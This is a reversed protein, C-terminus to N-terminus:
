LVLEGLVDVLYEPQRVDDVERHDVDARRVLRDPAPLHIVQVAIWFIPDLADMRLVTGRHSQRERIDIPTRCEVFLVADHPRVPSLPPDMVAPERDEVLSTLQDTERSDGLVDGIALSHLLRQALALLPQPM